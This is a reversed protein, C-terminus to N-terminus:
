ACHAIVRQSTAPTCCVCQVTYAVLAHADLLQNINVLRMCHLWPMLHILHMLRWTHTLPTCHKPLMPQLYLFCQFSRCACPLCCCARWSTSPGKPSAMEMGASRRTILAERCTLRGGCGTGEGGECGGMVVVVVEASSGGQMYAEVGSLGKRLQGHSFSM